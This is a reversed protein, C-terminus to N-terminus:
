IRWVTHHWIEQSAAPSNQCQDGEPTFPNLNRTQRRHVFWRSSRVWVGLMMHTLARKEPTKASSRKTRAAARIPAAFPRLLTATQRPCFWRRTSWWRLPPQNRRTRPGAVASQAICFRTNSRPCPYAKNFVQIMCVTKYKDIQPLKQPTFAVGEAIGESIGKSIYM